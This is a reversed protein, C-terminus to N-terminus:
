ISDMFFEHAPVKESLFEFADHDTHLAETIDDLPSTLNSAQNMERVKEKLAKKFKPMINEVKIFASKELIPDNTIGLSSQSQSEKQLSASAFLKDLNLKSQPAETANMTERLESKKVNTQRM